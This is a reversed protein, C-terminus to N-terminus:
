ASFSSGCGCTSKAGPNSITFKSEFNKEVFDITAEKLYEMSLYDVAVKIDDKEIIFDNEEINEEFTFDYQFGSCGGGKVSIRLCKINSDNQDIILDKIKTAAYNTLEMHDDKVLLVIM